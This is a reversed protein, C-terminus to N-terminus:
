SRYNENCDLSYRLLDFFSDIDEQFLIKYTIKNSKSYEEAANQKASWLGNKLQNRHWIHNAKIEIIMNFDPLFFDVYYKINKKNQFNFPIKPGNLIKVNLNECKKIFELELNSQYTIIDNFITVYRKIKFVKNSFLCKRCLIKNSSMKTKIRRTTKFVDDCNECKFTINTLLIKKNDVLIYQSYKAQNSVLLPPLFVM